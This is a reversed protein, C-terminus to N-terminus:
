ASPKLSLSPSLSVWGALFSSAGGGGEGGWIISNMEEDSDGGAVNKVKLNLSGDQNSASTVQVSREMADFAEAM